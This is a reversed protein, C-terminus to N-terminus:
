GKRKKRKERLLAIRGPSSRIEANRQDIAEFLPTLARKWGDASMSDFLGAKIMNEILAQRSFILGEAETITVAKGSEHVEVSFDVRKRGKKDVFEDVYVSASGEPSSITHRRRIRKLMKKMGAVKGILPAKTVKAACTLLILGEVIPM